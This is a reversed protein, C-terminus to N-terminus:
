KQGCHPPWSVSHQYGTGTATEERTPTRQHIQCRVARWVAAEGMIEHVPRIMLSNSSIKKGKKRVSGQDVLSEVSDLLAYKNLYCWEEEGM